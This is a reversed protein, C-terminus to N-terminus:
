CGGCWLASVCCGVLSGWYGEVVAGANEGLVWCGVSSGGADLYPIGVNGVLVGADLRQAASSKLGVPLNSRSLGMSGSLEKGATAMTGVAHVANRDMWLLKTGDRAYWTPFLVHADGQQLM